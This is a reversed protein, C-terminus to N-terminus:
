YSNKFVIFSHIFWRFFLFSALLLTTINPTRMFYFFISIFPTISIDDNYNSFCMHFRIPHDRLSELFCFFYLFRVSIVTLGISNEWVIVMFAFSVKCVFCINNAIIKRRKENSRKWKARTCVTRHHARVVM